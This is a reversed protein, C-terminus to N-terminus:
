TMQFTSTLVGSCSHGDGVFGEKCTCDYSGATNICNANVDCNYSGISCEDIDVIAISLGTVVQTRLKDTALICLETKCM